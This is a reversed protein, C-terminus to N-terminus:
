KIKLKQVEKMGLTKLLEPDFLNKPCNPNKLYQNVVFRAVELVDKRTSEGLRSLNSIFEKPYNILIASASAFLENPGGEPHGWNKPITRNYSSEDFIWFKLDAFRPELKEYYVAITAIPENRAIMEDVTRAVQLALNRDRAPLRDIKQMFEERAYKLIDYVHSFLNESGFEPGGTLRYPVKSPYKSRDFVNYLDWNEAERAANVEEVYGTLVIWNRDRKELDHYLTHSAEHWFVSRVFREDHKFIASSITMDDTNGMIRQRKSSKTSEGYLEKAWFVFVSTIPTEEKLLLNIANIINAADDLQKKSYFNEAEAGELTFAVNKNNYIFGDGKAIFKKTFLVEGDKNKVLITIRNESDKIKIKEDIKV